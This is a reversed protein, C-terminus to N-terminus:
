LRRWTPSRSRRATAVSRRRGQRDGLLDGRVDRQRGAHLQLEGRVRGLRVFQREEHREVRLHLRDTTDVSSPDTVTSGLGIATGEPSTAPAVSSRRPRPSTPSPSRRRHRHRRRRGQGDRDVDGRLERQREAHLQLDGGVREVGYPNGDKTVSWAYTFGATTDAHSPDTVTSGLSIATGEPSSAPAGTISATPAVNNVTVQTSYSTFGGDKDIIAATVTYVGNDDFTCDHSSSGSAAGYSVSSITGGSCDYVYHFGTTTDAHSPDFQGTFSVTAPSGEDVPGNNALTATPAVNAVTVTFTNSGSGHDKDTVTVTVTYTGNDDYSHTQVGLPSQDPVTFSSHTSGDGWNVDITWPNDHVGPDSFSGLDFLTSAGENSSQDAPATVTPAVNAVTVTFTKSDSGGDKDSVTETVTYTGNDVYTHSQAPIAGQSAADFSTNSSDGWSVYVHWPADNVGPDSFSGLDFSHNEGEDSSQSAGAAVTPPVNAVTVQFTASGSDGDKDTVTETVMHIGNDAYTHSQAAIAGQSSTTFGTDTSGDGWSVSVSWPADLVGPDTFSGLDFSHNEGEDSLQNAGPAVTPPVNAVTVQFTASGSDGDKDTVTETVTYPGNDAYTHSQAAIAGQSSATFSTDTSGDGWSVSVSWPADLVGPDTFSGLDFSHNEGEDSSQNAGATVAPAVNAVTVQFSESDFGGDKDTVTETVTYIGNDAYTHTRVDLSGQSNVDFAAHSSGDGWNVDVHWPDDNAGPDTFSGLGLLLASGENGSADGGPTVTPAVNTVTITKQDSGVGGNKDTASLSVVYSGNDDPTFSFSAGSGSAYPNGDKTVSWAEAFGAATDANSPDTVTSSLDIQTGEPSTTPAGIITATPPVNAVTVNFTATGTAGDKDTVTVTVTYSGNDDYTHALTGLPGQSSTAFTDHSSSDGWNVDVHWPSDGLGPDSFSGLDFAVSSGENSSQDAASTVSPAVNNVTITKSDTGVGSDKDTATFTVIYSANDDPTFSFTASSGGVGYPSGDKTVSWAYTFGVSTDASSPDTVSSHLLITTGEPSTAPADTITATPAVNTVTITKTDTGVGGDKDTATLTVVYSANDDPTFSFSSASGGSGYPSGNKTVSWSYLFGAATDLSGPDTVSSGLDIQTGEPSTAPAGTISATPAVNAVTATFTASGSAGDVDTVTVTVTFSGNDAYTHLRSGLSGQTSTSFTTHPSGDGWNVDVSWPADLVGPDSFSGLSFSHNEGENSSQNGGLAVTPAVNAVNVTFIASGSAHDKDTVTITVAYTGPNTFAHLQSGLSGTSSSTFTTDGSGDGWNVDVSWPADLVGPDSFSGLSFSHNEGENSSQPNAPATLTPAVNTVAAQFTASGVATDKDTVTVTVTYSGNDAYTHSQSGLPGQTSTTFTTHPSGDGWSVDVSWPADNVGPDSFSGLSFSHNEGENSSQDGGSVVSPSVNAVTATFTKTDSLAGSDTVKVTVTYTGNDAYTHGLSGLSGLSGVSASSHATSDGWNVDVSWPGDGSGPDTFSGLSFSHNEGENSSQSAPATVVPALNNVTVSATYETVGGDKDVIKGKVTRTGFTTTSCTATSTSSPTNYGSGCDFAYTFGAATDVSSPDSPSTLSLGIASGENVSAPANFTATPAVNTVTITKQDTGVGSDKDTATFTVVYTGNDNPTFSFTAASGSAFPNGNKTVSWSRTFGATTDPASPDTATSGLAIATGEPSTTPAGTITATPAVNTVSFTFSTQTSTHTDDATITVTTPGAPGDPAAGSWSWTGNANTGSKTVTGASATLTVTDGADADSWTGSNAANTGEPTTVSANNSAIVPAHNTSTVTFTASVPGNGDTVIVTHPGAAAAAPVTFTCSFSGFNDSKCPTPPPAMTLTLPSGDFTATILQNHNFNASAVTVTTGTAGSTPTMTMTSDTFSTRVVGSVPGTATVGYLAVFTNPLQFSTQFEGTSGATVDSNFSWTQGMDDNVLLHVSELPQWGTGTLTVTEGPHYDTKDSMVAPTAPAAAFADSFSTSANDLAGTAVAGFGSAFSSPLAFSAAISGDAGAAVDTDYSWGNDGTDTVHVHVTEGPMFSTGSLAVTDGPTYTAKDTALAPASSSSSASSSSQTSTTDAPATTTTESSSTDAPTTDTSTSSSSSSSSTAVPTTDTSGSTSLTLPSVDGLAGSVLLGLLFLAVLGVTFRMRLKRIKEAERRIRTM